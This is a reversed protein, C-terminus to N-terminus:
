EENQPQSPQSPPNSRPDPADGTYVKAYNMCVGIVIQQAAVSNGIGRLHVGTRCGDLFAQGVKNTYTRDAWSALEFSVFFSGITAFTWLAIKKTM